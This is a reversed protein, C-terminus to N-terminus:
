LLAVYRGPLRTLCGQTDLTTCVGSDDMVPECLWAM